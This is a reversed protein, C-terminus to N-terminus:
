KKRFVFIVALIIAILGIVGIWIWNDTGNVTADAQSSSVCQGNVSIFGSPCDGNALPTATPANNLPPKCVGNDLYYGPPCTQLPTGFTNQPISSSTPNAIASGYAPLVPTPKSIALFVDDTPVYSQNEPYPNATYESPQSYISPPPNTQSVM